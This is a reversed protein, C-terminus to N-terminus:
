TLAKFKNMLIFPLALAAILFSLQLAQGDGLTIALFYVILWILARTINTSILVAAIYADRYGEHSSADYYMGKTFAMRFSISAPDGVINLGYVSIPTKTFIRVVHILSASLAGLKLLKKGGANDILRGFLKAFLFSSILGVTTVLGVSVYVDQTFIFISVFLPWMFLTVMQDPGAMSNAFINQWTARWPFGKFTIHQHKRVPEPSMILPVASIVILIVAFYIAYDFGYSQAIFGGLVPGAASSLKGLQFMVSLEKGSKVTNQIKSFEVHYATFFLGTGAGDVLAIVWLPWANQELTLILGLTSILFIHGLIMMHKPGFYGVLRAAQFDWIIRWTYLTVFFIAIEPITYGLQYLFVPIFIGILSLGLTRIMMSIYLESLESLKIDKWSRHHFLLENIM